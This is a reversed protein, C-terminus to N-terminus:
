WLFLLALVIVLTEEGARTIFSMVADWFPTRLGELAYLFSM